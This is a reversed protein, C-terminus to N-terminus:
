VTRILEAVLAVRQPITDTQVYEKPNHLFEGNLGLGDLTPCVAATFNGDSGGGLKKPIFEWGREECIEKARDYVLRNNDRLTIAPKEVGGTVAISCREDFPMLSHMAEHVQRGLAESSYRIDLILYGKDPIMATAGMDGGHLSVVTYQLGEEVKSMADIKLLQKSLEVLPNAAYEPHNGAHGAIGEVTVTYVDRGYREATVYGLGKHGPEAVLCASCKKAAEIIFDKSTISGGEEDCSLFIDISTEPLMDLAKLAKVAMYFSIVGGKMDFIGPGFAKNEKISFPREETTGTPFVTDYHGVLFVRREYDGLSGFLHFGQEGADIRNMKFGIAEFIGQLYEGCKNKVEKEGYIHSEFNVTNKLAELFEERHKEVYGEIIESNLM